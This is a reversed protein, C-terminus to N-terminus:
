HRYVKVLVIKLTKWKINCAKVVQEKTLHKTWSMDMIFGHDKWSIEM